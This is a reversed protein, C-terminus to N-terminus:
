TPGTQGGLPFGPGKRFQEAHGAAREAICSIARQTEAASSAKQAAKRFVTELRGLESDPLPFSLVLADLKQVAHLRADLDTDELGAELTRLAVPFIASRYRSGTFLTERMLIRLQPDTNNRAQNEIAAAAMVDPVGNRYINRALAEAAAQRVEKRPASALEALKAVAGAHAPEAMETLDDLLGITLAGLKEKSAIYGLADFVFSTAIDPKKEVNSYVDNFVSGWAVQDQPLGALRYLEVALENSTTYNKSMTM